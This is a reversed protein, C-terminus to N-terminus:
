QLRPRLRLLPAVALLFREAVAPPLVSIYGFVDQLATAKELLLNPNRTVLLALLKVYGLVGESRATVQELVASLVKERAAEHTKFTEILVVRGLRSA